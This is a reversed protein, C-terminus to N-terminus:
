RTGEQSAAEPTAWMARLRDRYADWEPVWRACLWRHLPQPIDMIRPPMRDGQLAWLVVRHIQYWGRAHWSLNAMISTSRRRMGWRRYRALLRWRPLPVEASVGYEQRM